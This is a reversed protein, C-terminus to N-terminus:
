TSMEREVEPLKALIEDLAYRLTKISAASNERLLKYRLSVDEDSTRLDDILDVLAATAEELAADATEYEEKLNGEGNQCDAVCQRAEELRSQVDHPSTRLVGSVSKQWM